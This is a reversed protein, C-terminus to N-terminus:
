VVLAADDGLGAVVQGLFGGGGEGVGDQRQGSGGLLREASAAAPPAVAQPVGQPSPKDKARARSLTPTPM